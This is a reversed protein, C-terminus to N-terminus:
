QLHSLFTTSALSLLHSPTRANRIYMYVYIYVDVVYTQKIHKIAKRLSILFLRKALPGKVIANLLYIKYM